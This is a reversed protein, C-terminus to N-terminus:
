AACPEIVENAELYDLALVLSQRLDANLIEDFLKKNFDWNRMIAEELYGIVFLLLARQFGISRGKDALRITIQDNKSFLGTLRSNKALPIRWEIRPGKKQPENKPVLEMRGDEFIKVHMLMEEVCKKKKDAELFDFFLQFDKKM